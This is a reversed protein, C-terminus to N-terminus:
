MCFLCFFFDGLVLTVLSVAVVGVWPRFTTFSSTLKKCLDHLLFILQPQELMVEEQEKTLLNSDLITRSLCGFSFAKFVSLDLPRFFPHLKEMSISTATTKEM